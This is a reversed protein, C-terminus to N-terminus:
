IEWPAERALLNQLRQQADDPLPNELLELFRAHQQEDLAFHSRDLLVERAREQAADLMFESRNRGLARAAQDILDRAERPARININSNANTSM